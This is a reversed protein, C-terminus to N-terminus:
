GSSPYSVHERGAKWHTRQNGGVEYFCLVKWYLKNFEIYSLTDEGAWTTHHLLCELKFIVANQKHGWAAHDLFSNTYVQHLQRVLQPVDLVKKNASKLHTDSCHNQDTILNSTRTLPPQSCCPALTHSVLSCDSIQTLHTYSCFTSLTLHAQLSSSIFTFTLCIDSLCSILAAQSWFLVRPLHTHGLM